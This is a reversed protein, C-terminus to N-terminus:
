SEWFSAIEKTAAVSSLVFKREANFADFADKQGGSLDANYKAEILTGDETLFDLEHGDALVYAVSQWPRLRLYVYNEFYSDLLHHDRRAIQVDKFELYEEFTLPLVEM